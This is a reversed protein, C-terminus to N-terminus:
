GQKIEFLNNSHDKIFVIDFPERKIVTCSYNSNQANKLVQKRDKFIICIHQFNHENKVNDLFLELSFNNTGVLTVDVDKKIKFITESIFSQLTFKSKIELGLVGIYFNKIESIDNITIGIHQFM